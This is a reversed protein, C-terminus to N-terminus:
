QTGDRDVGIYIEYGYKVPMCSVMKMTKGKPLTLVVKNFRMDDDSFIFTVETGHETEQTHESMSCSKDHTEVKFTYLDLGVSTSEVSHILGKGIVELEM